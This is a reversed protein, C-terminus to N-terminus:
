YSYCLFCSCTLSPLLMNTVVYKESLNLNIHLIKKHELKQATSVYTPLKTPPANWSLDVVRVDGIKDFKTLPTIKCALFM